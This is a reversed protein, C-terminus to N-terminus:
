FSIEATQFATVYAEAIAMFINTTEGLDWDMTYKLPDDTSVKVFSPKNEDWQTLDRAKYLLGKYWWGSMLCMYALDSLPYVSNLWGKGLEAAQTIHALLNESTVGNALFDGRVELGNTTFLASLAEDARFDYRFTGMLRYIALFGGGEPGIQPDTGGFLPPPPPPNRPRLLNIPTENGFEIELDPRAALDLPLELDRVRLPPPNELDICVSGQCVRGLGTSSISPVIAGM